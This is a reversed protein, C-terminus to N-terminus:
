KSTLHVRDKENETCIGPVAFPKLGGFLREM